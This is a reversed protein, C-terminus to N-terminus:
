ALPRWDRAALQEDFGMGTGAPPLWRDGARRCARSFDTADYNLHTMLGCVELRDGSLQEIRFAHWAAGASGVPHDLYTTVVFGLGPRSTQHVIASADQIAPKLVLVDVCDPVTSAPTAPTDALDLALRFPFRSKIGSWVEADFAVPDEVFDVASPEISLADLLSHADALSPSANLDVRLKMRREAAARALVALSGAEREPDRGGKVKVVTFGDRALGDLDSPGIQLANGALVHSRIGRAADFQQFASQGACRSQADVRAQGFSRETLRTFAGRALVRLQEDLSADGFEPWPHCDAYGDGYEPFTFRLLSGRRTAGQARGLPERATLAYPSVAVQM